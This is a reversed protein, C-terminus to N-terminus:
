FKLNFIESIFLDYAKFQVNNNNAPCLRASNWEMRSFRSLICLMGKDLMDVGYISDSGETM